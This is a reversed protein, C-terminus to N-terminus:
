DAESAGVSLRLLAGDRNELPHEGAMLAAQVCCMLMIFRGALNGRPFQLNDPYPPCQLPSLFQTVIDRRRDFADNLRARM